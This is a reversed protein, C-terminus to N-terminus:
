FWALFLLNFYILFKPNLLISVKLKETQKVMTEYSLHIMFGLIAEQANKRVDANRDELNSYLHPICVMLEEKPVSKLKPLKEALWTWLENRLTPSGTKLADGVMEGEFFDKYSCLEGYINMCNLSATRIWAKGDGLGQLFGPFFVRIHQKCPPGMANALCECINFATQAIKSNSDVLRLALAQPLDGINPKIAKAETIITNVKILAENRVKWNKDSLENLLSDTIQPSIDVRLTVDVDGAAKEEEDINDLSNNSASKSVATTPRKAPKTASVATAAKQPKTVKAAPKYPATIPREKKPAAIKVTIVAKDCAEKIKTMKINDKELEMLFPMINKEGVLKM